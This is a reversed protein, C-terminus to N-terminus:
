PKEETQKKTAAYNARRKACVMDRNKQYYKRSYERMKDRAKQYSIRRYERKKEPNAVAWRKSAANCKERNAKRYKAQAKRVAAKNTKCYRRFYIRRKERRIAKKQAQILDAMPQGDIAVALLWEFSGLEINRQIKFLALQLPDPKQKGQWQEPHANIHLKAREMCYFLLACWCDNCLGQYCPAVMAKKTRCHRCHADADLFNHNDFEGFYDRFWLPSLEVHYQNGGRVKM